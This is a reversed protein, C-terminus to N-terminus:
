ADQFGGLYIVALVSSLGPGPPPCAAGPQPHPALTMTELSRHAGGLVVGDEQVPARLDPGQQPVHGQDADFRMHCALGAKAAWRSRM